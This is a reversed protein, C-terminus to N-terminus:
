HRTQDPREAVIREVANALIAEFEAIQEKTAGLVALHPTSLAIGRLYERLQAEFTGRVFVDYELQPACDYLKQKRRLKSRAPYNERMGEPMVIPVYRLEADLTALGSRAFAASLYLEVCRETTALAPSALRFVEASVSFKM